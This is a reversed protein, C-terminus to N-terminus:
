YKFLQKLTFFMFIYSHYNNHNFSSFSSSVNSHIHLYFLVIKGGFQLKVKRICDMYNNRHLSGKAFEDSQMPFHSAVLADLARQLEALPEGRLTTFFPLVLLAQSQSILLNLCNCLPQISKICNAPHSVVPLCTFVKLNLPLNMDVLLLCFTSFVQQFAKHDVDSCVSSDIQDPLLHDGNTLCTPKSVSSQM